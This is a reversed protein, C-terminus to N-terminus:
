LRYEKGYILLRNGIKRGIAIVKVTTDTFVVGYFVRFEGIRLEWEALQNPRLRKRNRTTVTPEFTLQTEIEDVIRQADRKRLERLDAVAELTFQITFM